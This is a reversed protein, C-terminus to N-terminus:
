SHIHIHHWDPLYRLKDKLIALDLACYLCGYAFDILDRGAYALGAPASRLEDLLAQLDYGMVALRDAGIWNLYMRCWAKRLPNSLSRQWKHLPESSITAYRRSGTPDQKAGVLNVQEFRALLEPSFPLELYDFVRRWETEPATVLDEYRLACVQRSHAQYASILAALGDYLDIKNFHVHWRGGGFTENISAVVALPHRWLFVFKANPFLRIIDATLVHYRPSKDLFYRSDAPAAQAYLRLMMERIQAEYDAQGHPLRHCFDTLAMRYSRHSYDTYVGNDRLTYLFPLLLWPEATTAIKDHAALIRQALTSGARPLSFLFIPQM